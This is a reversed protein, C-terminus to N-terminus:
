LTFCTINDQTVNFQLSIVTHLMVLAVASVSFLRDSIKIAVPIKMLGVTELLPM